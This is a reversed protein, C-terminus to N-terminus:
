SRAVVIMRVKVDTNTGFPLFRTEKFGFDKINITLFGDVDIRGQSRKVLFSGQYSRPIGGVTIKGIAINIHGTTNVIQVLDGSIKPFRAYDVIAWFNQDKARTGSTLSEVTFEVHMKPPPQTVLRGEEDWSAEVYGELGQTKGYVTGVSSKVFFSLTSETPAIKFRKVATPANQL